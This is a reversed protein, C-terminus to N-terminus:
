PTDVTASVSGTAPAQAELRDTVRRMVGNIFRYGEEDSYRKAVEIAEDIAIRKPIGLYQIEALAIRLIDRDVRALRKLNWGVMAANLTADIEAQHQSVQNLLRWAYDQVDKRNALQILEPLEVAAGLRNIAGQVQTMAQQVLTRASASDTSRTESNLLEQHSRELELAAADLTEKVEATLTQIATSLLDDLKQSSRPAATDSLQSLGLLALERAIRRFQM